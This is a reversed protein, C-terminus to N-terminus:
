TLDNQLNAPLEEHIVAHVEKNVDDSLEGECSEACAQKFLRIIQRHRTLINAGRKLRIAFKGPLMEVAHQLLTLQNDINDWCTCLEPSNLTIYRGRGSDDGSIVNTLFKDLQSIYTRISKEIIQVQRLEALRLRRKMDVLDERFMTLSDGAEKRENNMLQRCNQHIINVTTLMKGGSSLRVVRKYISCRVAPECPCGATWNDRSPDPSDWSM